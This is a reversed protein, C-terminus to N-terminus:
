AEAIKKAIYLGVDARYTCNTNGTDAWINNTGLLTTVETPTLQVTTPTALLYVCTIPDNELSNVFTAVTSYRDDRVLTQMGTNNNFAISNNNENADTYSTKFVYRDCIGMRYPINQEYLQSSFILRFLNGEKTSSAIMSKTIQYKADTVTLVGTKVNLTGGYVTQELSITYTHGVPAEYTQRTNGFSVMFEATSWLNEAIALTSSQVYLWSHNGTNFSATTANTFGVASYLQTGVAITGTDGLALNHGEDNGEKKQVFIATNKPVPIAFVRANSASTIATGSSTFTAAIINSPMETPIINKGARTVKAESFGTIPRINDPAPDGSGSQVPTIAVELSKVPIGDAGDPFSALAGTATDTPFSALIAADQAAQESDYNAIIYNLKNITTEQPTPM